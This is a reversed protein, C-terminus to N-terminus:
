TSKKKVIRKPKEKVMPTIDFDDLNQIQIDTNLDIDFNNSAVQGSEKRELVADQVIQSASPVSPQQPITQSAINLVNNVDQKLSVLGQKMEVCQQKLDLVQQDIYSRLDTLVAENKEKFMRNVYQELKHTLASELLLKERSSDVVTSKITRIEDQVVKISKSLEDPQANTVAVSSMKSEIELIRKLLIPDPKNSTAQQSANNFSGLRQMTMLENIDTENKKQKEILHNVTQAINNVMSYLATTM